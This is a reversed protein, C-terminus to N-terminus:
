PRSHYIGNIEIISCLRMRHRKKNIMKSPVAKIIIAAVM